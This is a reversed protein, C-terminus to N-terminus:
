HPVFGAIEEIVTSTAELQPLHGVDPLVRLTANPLYGALATAQAIPTAEDRDGWILLTPTVLQAYAASDTSLAVDPAVLESLWDAIASTSGQVNLPRQYRKIVDPTVVQDNHAFHRLGPGIFAPNTFSTSVAIERLPRWALPGLPGPPADIGLAGALVVLREVRDPVQFAIEVTPGAGFSHGVLSFRGVQLADLAAVVRAAQAPRDYRGNAPRDSYGFPPLDVAICRYGSATLADLVPRWTESWAGSGHIFVLVGGDRPGEDRLFLALDGADVFRGEPAATHADAVERQAAAVRMAVPAGVVVGGCTLALLSVASILTLLGCGIVRRRRSM